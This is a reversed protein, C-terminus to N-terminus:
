AGPPPPERRLAQRLFDFQREVNRCADCIVLHMRLRVRETAPLGHDLGQSLIRSVEKCTPMLSM